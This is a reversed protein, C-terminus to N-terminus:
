KKLNNYKCQKLCSNCMLLKNTEPYFRYPYKHYNYEWIILIILSIIIMVINLITAFTSLKPALILASSFMSYDWCNIGCNKCCNDKNHLLLVSLYCKKRTFISNLIFLVCGGALFLQWTLLGLYKIIGIIFFCLIWVIIVGKINRKYSTRPKGKPNEIYYKKLMKYHVANDYKKFIFEYSFLWSYSILIFAIYIINATKINIQYTNMILFAILLITYVSVEIAFLINNQKVKNNM